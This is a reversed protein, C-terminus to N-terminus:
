EKEREHQEKLLKERKDAKCCWIFTAVLFVIVPIFPIASLIIMKWNM